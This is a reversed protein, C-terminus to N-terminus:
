KVRKMNMSQGGGAESLTLEDSSPFFCEMTKPPEVKDNVTALLKIQRDSLAEYTGGIAVNTKTFMNGAEVDCRWTGDQQFTWTASGSAFLNSIESKWRGVLQSKLREQPSKSCGSVLTACLAFCVAFLVIINRM